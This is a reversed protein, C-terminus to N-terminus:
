RKEGKPICCGKLRLSREKELFHQTHNIEHHSNKSTLPEASHEATRKSEYAMRLAQYRHGTAHPPHAKGHMGVGARIEPNAAKGAAVTVPISESDSTSREAFFPREPHRYAILRHFRALSFEVGSGSRRPFYAANENYRLEPTVGASFRTEIRHTPM